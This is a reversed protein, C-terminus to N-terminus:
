ERSPLFAITQSGIPLTLSADAQLVCCGRHQVRQCGFERQLQLHSPRCNCPVHTPQGYRHPNPPMRRSVALLSMSFRGRIASEASACPEHTTVKPPAQSPYMSKMSFKPRSHSTSLNPCFSASRTRSWYWPHVMSHGHDFVDYIHVFTEVAQLM